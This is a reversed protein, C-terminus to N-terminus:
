RVGRPLDIGARRFAPALNDFCRQATATPNYGQASHIQGSVEVCVCGRYNVAALERLLTDYNITGAGPLLFQVRGNEVRVDKVHVFRTQPAMAKLTEMLSLDRQEFHSYDYALKIWPSKVQDLLWLAQEPTNMANLRHPKVAIVTRATEALRAWDALREAFSRRVTDWEGARGGLITEIVPAPDSLAHGLEAARTLRDMQMRHVKADGTLPTNEMLAPLALRLERLRDRLRTRAEKNLRAPNAHWDPMAALEVANYGIKACAALADDLPLSRMGYLSFGFTIAPAAQAARLSLGFSTAVSSLLFDRRQMIRIRPHQQKGHPNPVNRLV